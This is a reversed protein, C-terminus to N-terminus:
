LTLHNIGKLLAHAPLLRLPVRTSQSFDAHHAVRREQQLRGPEGVGVLQDPESQLQHVVVDRIDGFMGVDSAHKHVNSASTLFERSNEGTGAFGYNKPAPIPM